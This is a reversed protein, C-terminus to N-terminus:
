AFEKNRGSGGAKVLAGTDVVIRSVPGNVQTIAQTAHDADWVVVGTTHIAV